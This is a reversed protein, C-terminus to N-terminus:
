LENILVGKIHCKYTEIDPDFEGIEENKYITHYNLKRNHDEDVISKKYIYRKPQNEKLRNVLFDYMKNIHFNIAPNNENKRDTLVKISEYLKNINQGYYLTKM